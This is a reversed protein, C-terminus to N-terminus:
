IARTAKIISRINLFNPREPFDKIGISIAEPQPYLRVTVETIVGLTGESGVFLRTLDYGASSKRARGATRVIKGEATVVTLAVVNERM